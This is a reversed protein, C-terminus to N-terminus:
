VGDDVNVGRYGCRLLDKVLSRAEDDSMFEHTVIPLPNNTESTMRYRVPGCDRVELTLGNSFVHKM